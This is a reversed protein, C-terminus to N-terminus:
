GFSILTGAVLALLLGIKQSASWREGLIFRALLVATAPSLSVLASVLALSGRQAAWVFALNACSDLAGTLGSLARAAAVPWPSERRMGLVALLVVLGALRAVILPWLSAGSEIRGMFVLFFGVVAGATLAPGLVRRPDHGTGREATRGLLVISLPAILLGAIAGISPREGLAYGVVVPLALGTVSLVPSAVSMPGIALARYILMAGLGGFAGAAVGWGLDSPRTVGAVFPIGAFLVALAGFGSLFTVALAPARRAAVGGCFDAGGYFLSGLVGAVYAPNM